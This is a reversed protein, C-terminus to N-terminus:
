PPSSLTPLTSLRQLSFSGQLHFDRHNSGQGLFTITETYTGTLTSSGATLGAFDTGPTSPSIQIQRTVSYSEVGRAQVRGFFADLNDHDPHFTHLFPNSAHDNYDLPVVFNVTGGLGLTGTGLWPVNAHSFPLHAASLRRATARNTANLLSEQTGLVPNNEPNLGFYVRQVLKAQQSADNHIILRLPVPRPVATLATNVGSTLYPQGGATIPGLIPKGDSNTPYTVLYQGVQTVSADGVWLGTTDAVTAVVGFDIQSLGETDAIRLIAVNTQGATGAMASRNLGLVVEVDSGPTGQPALVFPHDAPSQATTLVTHTYSLDVPSRPGRVLLPPIGVSAPHGAPAAESALLSLRLTRTQATTNKLRISATSRTSSFDIGSANPTVVEAPGFYRNYYGADTSRVWFAEGRVVSTNHFEPQFVQVPNTDPSLDGGPYRFIEATLQLAPVPLLFDDFKPPAGAPTPFGLFNLGTTTWQYRPALPRGTIQWVFDVLGTNRVLYAANGTLTTLTDAAATRYWVKWQSNPVTTQQPTTTFQATSTAPQWLWVEAIDPALNAPNFVLDDLSIYSADVHLYVANWGPKLTITQTQWQARAATAGLLLGLAVLLPRFRFLPPNM